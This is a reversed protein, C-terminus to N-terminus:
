QSACTIAFWEAQVTPRMTMTRPESPSANELSRSLFDLVPMGLESIGSAM